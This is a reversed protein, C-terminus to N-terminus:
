THMARDVAFEGQELFDLFQSIILAYTARYVTEKSGKSLNKLMTQIAPLAYNAELWGYVQKAADLEAFCISEDNELSEGIDNGAKLMALMKQTLTQYAVYYAEDRPISTHPPNFPIRELNRIIEEVPLKLARLAKVRTLISQEGKAQYLVGEVLEKFQSYHAIKQLIAIDDM